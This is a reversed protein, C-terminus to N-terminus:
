IENGDVDCEYMVFGKKFAIQNPYIGNPYFEMDERRAKIAIYKDDANLRFEDCHWPKNCAHFKGEEYEQEDPNLNPVEIERGITWVTENKTGEQTKFDYSVRKYIIVGDSTHELCKINIWEELTAPKNIIKVIVDKTTSAVSSGNQLIFVSDEHGYLKTASSSAHVTASGSAHVTASGWAHVTASGWARVTVSDWARVTVSDWARVTVSDWARVTASYSAHVTASGWANVTASDSAYVMASDWANVTASYSARVTASGWANVTASDSAYVTANEIQTINICIGNSNEIWIERFEVENQPIADWEEQTKVTYTKM